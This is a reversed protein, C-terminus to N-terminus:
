KELLLRCVLNVHSQLESTHEESRRAAHMAVPGLPPVHAPRQGLRRTRRNRLDGKESSSTKRDRRDRVYIIPNRADAVLRGGVRRAVNWRIREWIGSRGAGHEFDQCGPEKRAMATRLDSLSPRAEARGSRLATM